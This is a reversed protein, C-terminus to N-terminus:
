GTQKLPQASFLVDIKRKNMPKNNLMYYIDPTSENTIYKNICTNPLTIGLRFNSNGHLKCKLPLDYFVFTYSSLSLHHCTSWLFIRCLSPSLLAMSLAPAHLTRWRDHLLSPSCPSWKKLLDRFAERTLHHSCLGLSLSPAWWTDTHAPPEQCLSSFTCLGQPSLFLLSTCSSHHDRLYPLAWIM